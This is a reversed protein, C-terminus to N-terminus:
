IKETTAILVDVVRGKQVDIGGGELIAFESDIKDWHDQVMYEIGWKTTGEDGAEFLAIVDRDLPTKQRHLMLLIQMVIAVNDKDDVSGRGYVYGNRIVGAFPDVTWKDREVGVVDTHGMLLLPKKRGNGKIRGVLNARNGDLAFIESAIGEQDLVSKIYEAARTENGPPNSTDIRI